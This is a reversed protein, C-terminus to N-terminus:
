IDIVPEGTILPHTIQGGSIVHNILHPLKEHLRPTMMSLKVCHLTHLIKYSEATERTLSVKFDRMFDDITCISFFAGTGTLRRELDDRFKLLLAVQLDDNEDILPMAIHDIIGKSMSFTKRTVAISPLRVGAQEHHTPAFIRKLTQLM